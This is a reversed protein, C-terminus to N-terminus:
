RNFLRFWLREESSTGLWNYTCNIVLSQDELHSGIEYRSDPNQIINRYIETNESSVVIPAAVKSRPILKSDHISDFPEKIYNTKVINMTFRLKQTESYPSLGINVVYVGTNDYFENHEVRVKSSLKILQENLGNRILIAGFSHNTFYNHEVVTEANVLPSLMVGLKRNGFFYNHGIQVKMQKAKEKEKWWCSQIEICHGLSNNFWNGTVNVFSDGCFNGM